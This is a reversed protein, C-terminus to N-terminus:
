ASRRTMAAQEFLEMLRRLTTKRARTVEHWTFRAPLWATAAVVATQRSADYVPQGQHHQGDLELFIGYEPWALDVRAVFQEWKNLVVVQRAPTPLCPETRILQVMLTELLSETPPVGPPRLALVRRIRTAGRAGRISDLAEVTVLCRRLASELAHEWHHDDVMMALDVLTQLADTSAIGDINTIHASPLDARRVNALRTNRRSPITAIDGRLTVSDFEHLLAALTGSATGNVAVVTGIAREVPTPPDIGEIYVTRHVRHLAGKAVAHKLASPTIGVAHADQTTFPRRFM